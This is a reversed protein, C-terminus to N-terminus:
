IIYLFPLFFPFVQLAEAHRVHKQIISYFFHLIVLVVTTCRFCEYVCVCFGLFFRGIHCSEQIRSPVFFSKQSSPFKYLYVCMSFIINRKSQNIFHIQIIPLVTYPDANYPFIFEQTTKFIFRLWKQEDPFNTHRNQAHVNLM